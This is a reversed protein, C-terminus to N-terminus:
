LTLELAALAVCLFGTEFFFFSHVLVVVLTFRQRWVHVQVHTCMHGCVHSVHVRLDMGYVGLIIIVIIIGRLLTLASGGVLVWHM